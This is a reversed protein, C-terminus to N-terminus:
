WDEPNHGGGRHAACPGIVASAIIASAAPPLGAVLAKLDVAQAGTQTIDVPGVPPQPAMPAPLTLDLSVRAPPPALASASVTRVTARASAAQQVIATVRRGLAARVDDATMVPAPPATSAVSQPQQAQRAQKAAKGLSVFIAYIVYAAFLIPVLNFDAARVSAVIAFLDLDM